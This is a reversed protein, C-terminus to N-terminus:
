LNDLNWYLRGAFSIAYDVLSWKKDCYEQVAQVSKNAPIDALNCQYDSKLYWVIDELINKQQEADYDEFNNVKCKSWYLAINKKNGFQVSGYIYGTPANWDTSAIANSEYEAQGGHAKISWSGARGDRYLYKDRFNADVTYQGACICDNKSHHKLFYYYIGDKKIVKAKSYIEISM